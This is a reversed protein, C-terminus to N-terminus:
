LAELRGALRSMLGAIAGAHEPALAAREPRDVCEPPEDRSWRALADALGQEGPLDEAADLLASWDDFPVERGALALSLGLGRTYLHWLVFRNPAAPDAWLARWWLLMWSAAEAATELRIRAPLLRAEPSPGSAASRWSSFLGVAPEAEPEPGLRGLPAGLYPCQLALSWGAPGLALPVGAGAPPENGVSFSHYPPLTLTWPGPRPEPVPFRPRLSHGTALGALVAEAATEVLARAESWLATPDASPYPVSARPEPPAGTMAALSLRVVERYMKRLDADRKAPLDAGPSFLRRSLDMYSVLAWSWPELRSRKAACARYSPASPLEGRLPLWSPRDEWARLGGWRLYLEIEAPTGVWLDGLPPFLRRLAGRRAALGALWAAEEDPGLPRRVLILDADSVGPDVRGSALGRHLVVSDVGALGSLAAACAATGGRYLGGYLASLGPTRRTALVASHLLRM